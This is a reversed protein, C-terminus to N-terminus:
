INDKNKNIKYISYSFGILIFINLITIWIEVKDSYIFILLAFLIATCLLYYIYEPEKTINSLNVDRNGGCYTNILKLVFFLYIINIIPIWGINM